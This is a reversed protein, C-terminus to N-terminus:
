RIRIMSIKIYYYKFLIKILTLPKVGLWIYYEGCRAKGSLHIEGNNNRNFTKEIQLDYEGGM